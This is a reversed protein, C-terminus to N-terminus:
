AGWYLTLCSGSRGTFGGIMSRGAALYMTAFKLGPDVSSLQSNPSTVTGSKSPFDRRCTVSSLKFAPRRNCDIPEPAATCCIGGAPALTRAPARTCTCNEVRVDSYYLLVLFIVNLSSSFPQLM